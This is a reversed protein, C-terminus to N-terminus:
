PLYGCGHHHEWPAAPAQPRRHQRAHRTARSTNDTWRFVHRRRRRQRACDNTPSRPDATDGTDMPTKAQRESQPPLKRSRSQHSATTRRGGRELRPGPRVSMAQLEHAARFRAGLAALFCASLGGPGRNTTNKACTSSPGKVVRRRRKKRSRDIPKNRADQALSRLRHDQADRLSNAPRVADRLARNPRAGCGAIQERDHRPIPDDIGCQETENPSMCGNARPRVTSPMAM